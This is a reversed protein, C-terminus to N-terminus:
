EADVIAQLSEELWRRAAPDVGDQFAPLPLMLRYTFFGSTLAMVQAARAEGEKGFWRALPKVTRDKLLRLAVERAESDSAGFMLMPLPNTGGPDEATFREVVDRGFNAKPIDTLLRIDLAAELAAEYLKLKSGFYRSVLSPNVEAIATIDRVKADAYGHTSFV